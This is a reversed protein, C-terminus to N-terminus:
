QQRPAPLLSYLLCLLVYKSHSSERCDPQKKKKAELKLCSYRRVTIPAVLYNLQFPCITGLVVFFRLHPAGVRSSVLTAYGKQKCFHNKKVKLLRRNMLPASFLSLRSRQTQISAVELFLCPSRRAMLIANPYARPSPRPAPATAAVSACHFNGNGLRRVRIVQVLWHKLM